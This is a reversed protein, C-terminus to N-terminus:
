LVRCWGFDGRKGLVGSEPDGSATSRRHAPGSACLLSRGLGARREGYECTHVGAGDVLLGGAQRAEAGIHAELSIPLACTQVGTVGIDRIGDEAQLFFM